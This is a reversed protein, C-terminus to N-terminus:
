LALVTGDVVVYVRDGAARPWRGSGTFTGFAPLLGVRAGLHFAPLRAGALRVAPHVHGALVYPGDDAVPHHRLHFPGLAWPEPRDVVGWGAPLEPVHRDHNGRVLVLEVPHRERWACVVEVVAATLGDRAHVLDGLVVLRRAGTEALAAALRDLDEELDGGPVPIGRARFTQGKGWHLDAVLLTSGEAWFASRDGRLGLRTGGVDVVM